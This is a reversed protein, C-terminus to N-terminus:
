WGEEQSYMDTTYDEITEDCKDLVKELLKSLRGIMEGALKLDANESKIIDLLLEYEEREEYSLSKEKLAAAIVDVIQQYQERQDKLYNIFDNIENM